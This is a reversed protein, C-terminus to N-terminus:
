VVSKRDQYSGDPFNVLPDHGMLNPFNEACYSIHRAHYYASEGTLTVEDPGLTKRDYRLFFALALIGVGLFSFIAIKAWRNM